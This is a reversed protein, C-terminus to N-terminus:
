LSCSKIGESPVNCRRYSNSQIHLQQTHQGRWAASFLQKISRENIILRQIVIAKLSKSATSSCHKHWFSCQLSIFLFLPREKILKTPFGPSSLSFLSFPLIVFISNQETGTVKAGYTSWCRSATASLIFHRNRVWTHIVKWVHSNFKWNHSVRNRYKLEFTPSQMPASQGRFNCWWIETCLKTKPFFFYFLIYILRLMAPHTLILFMLVKLPLDIRDESRDYEFSGSYLLTERLGM